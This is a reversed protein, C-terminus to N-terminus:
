GTGQAVKQVTGIRDPHGGDGWGIGYFLQMLPFCGCGGGSLGSDHCLGVVQGGGDNTVGDFM